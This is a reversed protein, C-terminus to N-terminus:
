LQIRPSESTCKSYTAFLCRYQIRWLRYRERDRHGDGSVVTSPCTLATEITMDIGWPDKSKLGPHFSTYMASLALAHM